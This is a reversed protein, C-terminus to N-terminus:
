KKNQKEFFDKYVKKLNRNEQVTIKGQSKRTMVSLIKRSVMEYMPAYDTFFTATMEKIIGYEYSQFIIVTLLSTTSYAMAEYYRHRDSNIAYLINMGMNKEVITIVNEMFYQKQFTVKVEAYDSHKVYETPNDDLILRSDNLLQIFKQYNEELLGEPMTEQTIQISDIEEM